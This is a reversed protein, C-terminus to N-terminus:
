PRGSASASRRQGGAAVGAGQDSARFGLRLRRGSGTLMGQERLGELHKFVTAPSGYGLGIQIERITPSYGHDALYQAVWDFVRRQPISM